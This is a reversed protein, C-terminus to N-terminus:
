RLPRVAGARRPKREVVVARETGARKTFTTTSIVDRRQSVKPMAVRVKEIPVGMLSSAIEAQAKPDDTLGRAAEIAEDLSPPEERVRRPGYETNWTKNM